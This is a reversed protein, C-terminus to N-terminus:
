AEFAQPDIEAARAWVASFPANPGLEARAQAQAANIRRQPTGPLNSRADVIKLGPGEQKPLKALLKEAFADGAEIKEAFDKATEDDGPAIRGDAIAADILTKAREKRAAAEAAELQKIKDKMQDREAIASAADTKLKEIAQVAEQEANEAAANIALDAFILKSMTPKPEPQDRVGSGDAAAIRPIERFAPENVLSGVPGRIDLGAPIGDEGLLFSPSFYSFDKGELAERGGKSWDMSMIIGRGPDYRFGTPNGSSKKCEHDFDTWPRVNLSQRAELDSQLKAAIEAGNAAPLKVQIRQPKGDVYPTLEHEGEPIYVIENPVGDTPLATAIIATVLRPM